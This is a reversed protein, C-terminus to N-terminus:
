TTAAAGADAGHSTEAREPRIRFVAVYLAPLFLLTLVTGVIIGGMMAYAMPGWFVERSIPILALSAAAATLLIPRMRHETAEVVADWPPRGDKRLDEIQVVLIVSNRILIGILALIGLIAVFGMPAGAPVLAAVVGILGLPAVAVVLFLRTFSQLQLMVLTAIALLMVPVIAAIPGQGKGSEEVAGAIQLRFGAPLKAAFADVAPQLATVITAPQTADRVSGRVTITPVRNRRWVVPQEMDYRFTAIAALPVSQNNRGPLQLNQFTAISGREAEKARGVVDVLYISDRVQTVAAGGVISNLTRSIDQSSVGLQRAKDQLVDIKVVRAPENWDYIVQGIRQDRAMIGALEQSFGRLAPIDPGSLRYAVPRGVPPGLDMNHVYVDTGVFERRAIEQLRANVRERAELSKTVVIMQGFYPNPPQVDFSLVFRVAGQGVYSSWHEIDPDGALKTEFRDMQAKTEAISSNQPLTWDVILEPRDSSPFFQQQVFRMGYVSVAFVAVTAAITVWRWRMCLRLLRAFGRGFRGPGHGAHKLAKPLITVGLLPAFLVAVIWSVLLSVAIVVFLTYTFEGAASGNLGVPIFSAVTVLTGTLMPAATTSWVATAAKALNDGAELRAVMMEVAIMADDVLLGLAIILAGLSIRQLSIGWYQM